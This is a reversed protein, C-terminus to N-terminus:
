NNNIKKYIMLKVSYLDNSILCEGYKPHNIKKITLVKEKHIKFNNIIKGKNIDIIKIEGNKCGLYLINKELFGISYLWEDNINIIKILDRSHFNWVIINGSCSSEIMKTIKENNDILISMHFEEKENEAIYKHYVKNDNYDYSKSYGKNGTIIYNKNSKKDEYIDIFYTLDFSDNLEKIKNGKLDFIKIREVPYNYNCNSTLIYINNDKDFFCASDLWGKKNIESINLLCEFNIFDWLKINNNDGSITIILDRKNNKDFFHRFNTIPYNHSNKIENIKKDDILNYSIITSKINAYILFLIDNYAKFICFTNDIWLESFSDKILIKEDIKKVIFNNDIKEEIKNNLEKIIKEKNLAAENEM